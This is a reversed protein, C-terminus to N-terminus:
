ASDLKLAFNEVSRRFDYLSGPHLIVINGIESHFQGSMIASTYAIDWDGCPIIIPVTQINPSIYRKKYENANKFNIKSSSDKQELFYRYHCLLLEYNHQYFGGTISSM